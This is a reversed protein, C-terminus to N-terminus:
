LLEKSSNKKKLKQMIFSYISSSEMLFDTKLQGAKHSQINLPLVYEIYVWM